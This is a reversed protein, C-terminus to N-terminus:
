DQTSQLGLTLGTHHQAPGLRLKDSGADAALLDDVESGRQWSKPVLLLSGCDEELVVRGANSHGVVRDVWCPTTVDVRLQIEQAVHHPLAHELDGLDVTGLVWGVREGLANWRRRQLLM